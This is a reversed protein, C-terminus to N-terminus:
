WYTYVLYKGVPRLYRVQSFDFKGEEKLRAVEEPTFYFQGSKPKLKGETMAEAVRYIADYKKRSFNDPFRLDQAQKYLDSDKGWYGKKIVEDLDKGFEKTRLSSMRNLVTSGIMHWTDIGESAAEAYIIDALKKADKLM